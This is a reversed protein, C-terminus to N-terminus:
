QTLSEREYEVKGSLEPGPKSRLQFLQTSYRTDYVTSYKYLGLSNVSWLADQELKYISICASIFRQKTIFYEIVCKESLSTKYGIAITINILLLWLPM